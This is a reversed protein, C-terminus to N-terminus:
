ENEQWIRTGITAGRRVHSPISTNDNVAKVAFRALDHRDVALAEKPVGSLAEPPNGNKLFTFTANKNEKNAEFFAQHNRAGLGYSDAFVKADVMRGDNPDQARKVVGREPHAWQTYPDAHVYVYNVKLGRAEAEKQIWPNETANQDGASDWVVQSRKKVEGAQPVMKLAYGKGAGCGGVTVMIESGAPLTDLHQVFARKTIANATQHLSLNYMARNASREELSLDPHSWKDSLVKSDDTGFTVAEGPKTSKVLLDRFKSAMGDPDAEYAKAFDEEVQREADTLNPLRGVKPPPPIDGAPVGVKAAKTIGNEDTEEVDPDYLCCDPNATPEKSIGGGGSLLGMGKPPKKGKGSAGGGSSAWKGDPGRPQAPNYNGVPQGTEPDMLTEGEKVKVPDFPLEPEEPVPERGPVTVDDLDPNAENIHEIAAELVEEALDRDFGMVHVLFDMPPLLADVGGSVYAVLAQTIQLAVAARETENLEKEIGWDVHFVEPEPLVGVQILRDVTPVIMKPTLYQTRRHNCRTEWSDSDQSSALEGMESGEFIRRPVAKYICIANIHIEINPTPDVVTPSLMKATVGAMGLWRQLHNSYKTMQERMNASDIKVDGGLTPHTEISIGPFAGQWYMETSGGYLKYLDLLHNVVPRMRPVGCWESSDLNDAAHIVRTWHVRNDTATVGIGIHQTDRPDHFTLTYYKPLGFRPNNQDTEWEHIQIQGEDFVRIFLLKRETEVEVEEGDAGEGMVGELAEEVDAGADGDEVDMEPDDEREDGEANGALGTGYMTDGYGAISPKEDLAMGAVPEHLPLGDDLGLLMCGFHGIGSLKDLREMAEWIPHSKEDKFKSGGRLSDCLNAWAQEFPTTIENDEDEYVEPQVKWCETPELTVVRKAIGLRDYLKRYHTEYTIEETRPYGCEADIDRRPDLMKEILQSRSMMQNYIMDGLKFLEKLESENVVMDPTPAPANAIDIGM